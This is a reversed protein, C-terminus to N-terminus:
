DQYKTPDPVGADLFGQRRFRCSDCSGFFKLSYLGTKNFEADQQNEDPSKCRQGVLHDRDAGAYGSEGQQWEQHYREDAATDAKHDNGADRSMM